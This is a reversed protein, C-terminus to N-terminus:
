SPNLPRMRRSSDQCVPEEMVVESVGNAKSGLYLVLRVFVDLSARTSMLSLM